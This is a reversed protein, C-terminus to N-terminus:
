TPKNRIHRDSENGVSKSKSQGEYDIPLTKNEYKTDCRKNLKHLEICIIM